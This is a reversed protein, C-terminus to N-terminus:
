SRWSWRPRTPSSSRRTTRRRTPRAGHRDSRARRDPGREDRGGGPRTRVLALNHTVFLMAVGSSASCSPSCSSSRRRCRSTSRLLDVEDCILLHARRRPGPSPWASASAAALAPGSLPLAAADLAVQDLAHSWADEVESVTSTSSSDCRSPRPAPPDTKRPNLSSYPSQFIYQIAQREAAAARERNARGAAHRAARHGRRYPRTSAPSAAPWRPRAAVGVRRGPGSLSARPLAASIDHLVEKSSTSPPRHRARQDGRARRALAQLPSRAARRRDRRPETAAGGALALLAGSSGARARSPPYEPAASSAWTAARRSPAAPPRAPGPAAGLRPHWAPCARGRPRPHRRAAQAHLSALRRRLAGGQARGRGPPRRVHRRDPRRPQRGGGPRPHRLPRRRRLRADSARITELM